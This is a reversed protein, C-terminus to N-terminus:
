QPGGNRRTLALVRPDVRVRSRAVADINLDFTLGQAAVRLCFMAGYECRIDADTITLVSSAGIRNILRARDPAALQGIYLAHCGAANVASPAMHAVVMTRGASLNRASLRAAMPATGTVCLRLTQPANDWRSYSIINTVLDATAVAPGDASSPIESQAVIPVLSLATAAQWSIFITGLAMM